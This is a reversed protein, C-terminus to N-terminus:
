NKEQYVLEGTFGELIGDEILIKGSYIIKELLNCGFFAGSRIKIVGKPIVCEGKKGEPCLLLTTMNKDFLIGEFAYFALNNEDVKIDTLSTCGKFASYIISNTCKPLSISTLGTCGQFASAGISVLSEPLIISTLGTCGTFTAHDIMTLTEPLKIEILGTCDRFAGM